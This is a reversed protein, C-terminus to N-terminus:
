TPAAPLCRARGACRLTGSGSELGFSPSVARRPRCQSCAIEDRALEPASAVVLVPKKLADGSDM